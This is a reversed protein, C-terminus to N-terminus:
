FQWGAKRARERTGFFGEGDNVHRVRRRGLQGRYEHLASLDSFAAGIIKDPPVTEFVLAEAQVDSPDFSHLGQIDRHPTTMHEAFMADFAAVSRLKDLDTKSMRADAANHACFAASAEWMIDPTLVLVVWSTEAHQKRWRYFLKETPHVISFCSAEAYGDWRVQDNGVFPVNSARLERVSLLGEAMISPLNEVRTFHVLFPIKRDAVREAINTRSQHAAAPNASPGFRPATLPLAESPKEAPQRDLGDLLLEKSRAGLETWFAEQLIPQKELRDLLANLRQSREQALNAYTKKIAASIVPDEHPPIAKFDPVSTIKLADDYKKEDVSFLHLATEYSEEYTKRTKEDLSQIYNRKKVNLEAIELASKIANKESTLASEIKQTAEAVRNKTNIRTQFKELEENIQTFRSGWDAHADPEDAGGKLTGASAGEETRNSAVKPAMIPTIASRCKVDAKEKADHPAAAKPNAEKPAFLSHSGWIVFLQLLILPTAFVMILTFISWAVAAYTLNKRSVIRAVVMSLAIFIQFAIIEM